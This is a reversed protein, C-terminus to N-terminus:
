RAPPSSLSSHSQVSPKTGSLLGYTMLGREMLDLSARIVRFARLM